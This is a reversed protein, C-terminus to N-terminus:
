SAKNANTGFYTRQSKDCPPPDGGHRHRTKRSKQFAPSPTARLLRLNLARQVM